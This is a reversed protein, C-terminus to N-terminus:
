CCLTPFSGSNYQFRVYKGHLYVLVSASNWASCFYFKTINYYQSLTLVNILDFWLRWLCSAKIPNLDTKRHCVM